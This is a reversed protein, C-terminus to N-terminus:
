VSQEVGKGNEYCWALNCQARADGQDAALRYLETAKEWSQPVGEGVEYCLGLCCTGPAYDADMARKFIEVAKECDKEVGDGRQLLQGLMIWAAPDDEREGLSFFLQRAKNLDQEVWEGHQYCRGLRFIAPPYESDAARQLYDLATSNDNKGMAEDCLCMWGYGSIYDEEIPIFFTGGCHPCVELEPDSTVYGCDAGECRFYDM